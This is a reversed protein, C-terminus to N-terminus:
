PLLADFKFKYCEGNIHLQTIHETSGARNNAKCTYNGSLNYSASDITLITSRRGVKDVTIETHKGVREGNLFWDFSIPLDGEAASCTVSTYSGAQVPNEEFSFPSIRPLM